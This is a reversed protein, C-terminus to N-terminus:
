DAFKKRMELFPYVSNNTEQQHEKIVKFGLKQYVKQARVNFAAVDLIIEKVSFKNLTYEIIAELFKQGRGHGTLEPKMGLGIEYLGKDEAVKEVMFFGVLKGNDLVQYYNTGRLSPTSIEKYDEPDATMDYFSYKGPYHWEDAIIMANEQTLQAIKYTM